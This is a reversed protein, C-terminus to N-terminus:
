NKVLKRGKIMVRKIVNEILDGEMMLNWIYYLLFEIIIALLNLDFIM